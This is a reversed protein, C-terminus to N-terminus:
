IFFENRRRKGPLSDALSLEPLLSNQTSFTANTKMSMQKGEKNIFQQGQILVSQIPMALEEKINLDAWKIYINKM